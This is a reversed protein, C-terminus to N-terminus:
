THTRTNKKLYADIESQPYRVLSGVKVYRPGRGISRWNELTKPAVGLQAAAEETTLKQDKVARM